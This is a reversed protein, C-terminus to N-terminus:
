PLVGKLNEIIAILDADKASSASITIMVWRDIRNLISRDVVDQFIRRTHSATQFGTQNFFTYAFGAEGGQNLALTILRWDRGDVQVTRPHTMQLGQSPLCLEPRHISSKSAGGVVLSVQFWSGDTAMYRRKELYTDKPLINLEAESAGLEVSEYGPVEPLHVEPADTLVVQPTAAQYLMVGLVILASLIPIFTKM